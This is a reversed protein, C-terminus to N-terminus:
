KELKLQLESIEKEKNAVEQKHSNIKERLKIIQAEYDSKNENLM